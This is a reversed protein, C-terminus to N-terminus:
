YLNNKSNEREKRYSKKLSELAVKKEIKPLNKNNIKNILSEYKKKLFELHDNQGFSYLKLEEM